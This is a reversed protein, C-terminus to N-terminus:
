RRTRLAECQVILLDIIASLGYLFAAATIGAVVSFMAAHYDHVTPTVAAKMTAAAETAAAGKGASTEQFVSYASYAAWGVSGLLVLLAAYSIQKAANAQSEYWMENKAM